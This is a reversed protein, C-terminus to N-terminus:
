VLCMERERNVLRWVLSPAMPTIHSSLRQIERFTSIRRIPPTKLTRTGRKRWISPNGFCELRLREPTREILYHDSVETFIDVEPLLAGESPLFVEESPDKSAEIRVSGNEEVRHFTLPQKLFTQNWRAISEAPIYAVDSSVWEFTMTAALRERADYYVQSPARQAEQPPFPEASLFGSGLLVCGLWTGIFGVAWRARM